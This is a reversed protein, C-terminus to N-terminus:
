AVWKMWIKRYAAETAELYGVIVPSAMFEARLTKRSNHLAHVDKSLKVAKEIYDEQSKAIWDTKGMVTLVSSSTRGSPQKGYLTLMPVGMYLTELSVVGGGHPFPDLILDAQQYALLHELHNTSISFLVREPAIDPMVTLIRRISYPRRFAHDKFQLKSDPVRRLIEAFTQLCEDSLKEYRAYSGFTIYGNQHYPLPSIGKTDYEPPTYSVISPLDFIQEAYYKREDEPTAVPDGFFYDIEPLGTGHAFGWATIQIPAPKRTFLALRGGNTHGALDVLIDIRDQRVLEEAKEDDLASIDRWNGLDMYKKTMPDADKNVPLTSYLFPEINKRDHKMVVASFLMSASHTKFDGSVYGVRLVRDKSRDNYHPKKEGAFRNAQYWRKRQRLLDEPTLNVLTQVFCANPAAQIHKPTSDLIENYLDIAQKPIGATALTLALALRTETTPAMEVGKRAAELAEDIRDAELCMFARNAYIIPNVGDLMSAREITLLAENVQNMQAFLVALNQTAISHRPNLRLAQKYHREADPFKNSMQAEMGLRVWEDAQDSGQSPIITYPQAM